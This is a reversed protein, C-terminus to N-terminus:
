GLAASAIEEEKFRERLHEALGDPKLRLVIRTFPDRIMETALIGDLSLMTYAPDTTDVKLAPVGGLGGDYSQMFGALFREKRTKDSLSGRRVREDYFVDFVKHRTVEVNQRMLGAAIRLLYPNGQCINQMNEFESGKPSRKTYKGYAEKFETENFEEMAWAIRVGRVREIEQFFYLSFSLDEARLWDWSSDLSTIMFRVRRMEGQVATFREILANIAVLLHEAAPGDFDFREVSDFCILLHAGKGELLHGVYDLEKELAAANGYGLDEAIIQGIVDSLRRGPEPQLQHMRRM